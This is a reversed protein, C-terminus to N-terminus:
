VYTSMFEDLTFHEDTSTEFVLEDYSLPALFAAYQADNMDDNNFDDHCLHAYEASLASILQARTYTISTTM